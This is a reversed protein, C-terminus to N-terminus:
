QLVLRVSAKRAQSHSPESQVSQTSGSGFFAHARAVLSANAFGFSTDGKRM